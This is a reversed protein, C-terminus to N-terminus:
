EIEDLKGNRYVIKWGTGPVSEREVIDEKKRKRKNRIEKSKEVASEAMNNFEGFAKQSLDVFLKEFNM